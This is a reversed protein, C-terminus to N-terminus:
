VGRKLKKRLNKVRLLINLLIKREFIVNYIIVIIFSWISVGIAIIIWMIINPPELAMFSFPLSAIVFVLAYKMMRTLTQKYHVKTVNKSMFIILEVDRYLNSIILAILLGLVGWIPTLILSLVVAIVTQIITAPKTERFVGASGILTGAPTKFNYTLGNLVFLLAISPQIYNADTIGSTYLRIFPIYLINMCSYSWVMLSFFIVEYEGYAKKLTESEKRAIMDGFAAAFGNTIANLLMLVSSAVMNYISYVSVVKLDKTFFTLMIVPMSTQALGLLQLIMADWRKSLANNDPVVSYDVYTYYRKVYLNLILSRLIYTTLAVTRVAVIGFSLKISVFVLVFNILNAITTANAVIYYKQDATLLARYRSLTFFDFSGNFGLVLVLLGIESSSLSKTSLFLPYLLALGIVLGSFIYGIKFYFNKATSLIQNVRTENKEALPIYLSVTTASAVGAEVLTFYAIFQTISSVLGNIESGFAYLYLRPLILGIVMTVLQMIISAITNKISAEFRM